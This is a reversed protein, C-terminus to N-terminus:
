LSCPHGLSYLVSCEVSSHVGKTQFRQQVKELELIGNAQKNNRNKNSPNETLTNMTPIAEGRTRVKHRYLSCFACMEGCLKPLVTIGEEQARQQECQGDM